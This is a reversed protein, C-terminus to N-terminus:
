EEKDEITNAHTNAHETSSTTPAKAVRVMAPRLVREGLMYGRQVEGIIQGEEYGPAEEYTVAEHYVPDFAQGETEIPKVGESDLLADLKAKILFVGECWTLRRLDDPLTALAREFDDVVPLIKHLVATNALAMMQGREAEQRKRYNSFEAQARQWGDLYEAAQAKAAELEAELSELEDLGGEPQEQEEIEEEVTSPEVRESDNIKGEIKKKTM